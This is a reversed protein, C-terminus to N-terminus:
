LSIKATDGVQFNNKQATGAKLEIVTDSPKTPTYIPLPDSPSKPNPVNPFISVITNKELFLIDIPFKMNKMWFGYYDPKDFTFIMGQSDSLTSKNSLGIQKDKESAAEWLSFTNTKITVKASKIFLPAFFSSISGGSMNVFVFVGLLIALVTFIGITLRTNM